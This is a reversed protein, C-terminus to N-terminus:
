EQVNAFILLIIFFFKKANVNNNNALAYLEYAHVLKMIVL